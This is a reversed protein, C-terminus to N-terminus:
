GRVAKLIAILVVSGVVAVLLSYLTFEGFGSGGILSFLFSGLYAGIVGIVVNGLLGQSESTKMVISAIWGAIGGLVLFALFGMNM